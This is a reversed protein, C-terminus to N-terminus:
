IVEMNLKTVGKRVFGLQKAIAYSVDVERGKIYPGRDNVVGEVFRGNEPNLLRVKTGLPLTRHALTNQYMDFHQGSATLKQHHERGYWSATVDGKINALELPPPGPQILLKQGPRIMNPNTLGNDRAIQYPDVHFRKRGISWLTDGAQVIYEIPQKAELSEKEASSKLVSALVDNFKATTKEAPTRKEMDALPNAGIPKAQVPDMISDDGNQYLTLNSVKM